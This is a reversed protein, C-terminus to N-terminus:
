LPDAWARMIPAFYNALSKTLVKSEGLKVQKSDRSVPFSITYQGEKKSIGTVHLEEGVIPLESVGLDLDSSASRIWAESIWLLSTINFLKVLFAIEHWFILKDIRDEFIPSVVYPPSDTADTFFFGIHIHYGDRKMITAAFNGLSNVRSAIPLNIDHVSKFDTGSEKIAEDLSQRGKACILKRMAHTTLNYIKDDSLKLYARHTQSSFFALPSPPSNELGLYSKLKCVIDFLKKYGYVVADILEYEPLTNAVWRREITLASEKYIGKPM